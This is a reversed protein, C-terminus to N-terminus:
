KPPETFAVGAYIKRQGTRTVTTLVAESRTLASAPLSMRRGDKTEIVGKQDLLYLDRAFEQRTYDRAAGPLLTLVRHVDVLRAPAGNRLHKSAVVLDYGAALTQIFADAKFRPPRQQLTALHGVVVSPRVRRDKQKDVLVTTDSPSVQVIVPYSLIRDDSEFAQLGAENAAALLEKAYDGSAFWEAVDFRWGQRLERAAATAQDALTLTAELAQQLDRMQGHAAAAKAKKAAKLASGLAKIADDADGEVAQLAEELSNPQDTM